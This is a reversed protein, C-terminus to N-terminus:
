TPCISSEIEYYRQKKVVQKIPGMKLNGPVEFFVFYPLIHKPLYLEWILCMPNLLPRQTSRYLTFKLLSSLLRGPLCGCVLVTIHMARVILKSGAPLQSPFPQATNIVLSHTGPLSVM